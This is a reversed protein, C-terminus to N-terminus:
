YFKNNLDLKNDFFMYFSFLWFDFDSTPDEINPIAKIKAKTDRKKIKSILKGLFSKDKPGFQKMFNFLFQESKQEMSHIINAM